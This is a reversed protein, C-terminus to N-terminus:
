EDWLIPSRATERQSKQRLLLFFKVVSVMQWHHNNSLLIQVPNKHNKKPNISRVSGERKQKELDQQFINEEVQVVQLGADEHSLAGHFDNAAFYEDRVLAGDLQPDDNEGLSFQDGFISNERAQPGRNRQVRPSLGHKLIALELLAHFANLYSFENKLSRDFFPGNKKYLIKNSVNTQIEM